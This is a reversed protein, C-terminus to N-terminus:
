FRGSKIANRLECIEEDEASAEEVERTTMARPTANVAVFRVYEDADHEHRTQPTKTQKNILRSLPDAINQPGPIHVIKFTYPQIRLGWRTVCACPKSWM